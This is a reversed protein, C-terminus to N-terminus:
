RYIADICLILLPDNPNYKSDGKDTRSNSKHVMDEFSDSALNSTGDQSASTPYSYTSRCLIGVRGKPSKL